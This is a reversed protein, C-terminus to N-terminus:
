KLRKHLQDFANNLRVFKMLHDWRKLLEHGAHRYRVNFSDATLLSVWDDITAHFVLQWEQGFHHDVNNRVIVRDVVNNFENDPGGSGSVNAISSYKYKGQILGVMDAGAEHIEISHAPAKLPYLSIITLM